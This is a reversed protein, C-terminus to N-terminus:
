AAASGKFRYTWCGAAFLLWLVVTSWGLAGIPGTLQHYLTFAFGVTDAVALALLMDSKLQSAEASSAFWCILGIGLFCAGFMQGFYLGVFDLDLGYWTLIYAPVALSVAAFILCIAGKIRLFSGVNM